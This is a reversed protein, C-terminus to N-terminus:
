LAGPMVQAAKLLKNVILKEDSLLLTIDFIKYLFCGLFQM